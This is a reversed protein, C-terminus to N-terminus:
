RVHQEIWRVARELLDRRNEPRTISHGEGGYIVLQADVGQQRLATYLFESHYAPVGREGVFFLTPITMGRVYEIASNKRYNQQAQWPKGKFMWEIHAQGGVALGVGYALYWEAPGEYSIAAKFRASHTIVWNTVAAGYSVGLIALRNPDAIGRDIVADVGGVVDAMDRSFFEQKDVSDIIKSWGYVGSARYDPALVAFGRAAWMHWEMPTNGLLSGAGYIGGIPGGHVDVILPYRRGPQYDLPKVLLGALKTGDEARWHIEEVAGVAVDALEPSLDALMRMASGDKKSWHLQKHGQPDRTSWALAAGDPSVSMARVDRTGSTLQHLEGALTLRYIQNFVSQKGRFYLCKSDACWIPGPSVFLEHTLQRIEGSRQSRVAINWVAPYLMNNPDNAFALHSGDPAVAPHLLSVGAGKVLTTVTGDAYSVQRVEGFTENAANNGMHAAVAYVVTSGDPTWSLAGYIDYGGAVLKKHTDTALDYAWLETDPLVRGIEGAVRASSAQGSQQKSETASAQPRFSYALRRSDTSWNFRYYLDGAWWEGINSLNTRTLQRTKGTRAAMLWLQPNERGAVYAIFAGDPSPKPYSGVALLSCRGSKIELRAIWHEDKGAGQPQTANAANSLPENCSALRWREASFVITNADLWLPRPDDFHGQSYDSLLKEPTIAERAAQAPSVVCALWFILSTVIRGTSPRMMPARM